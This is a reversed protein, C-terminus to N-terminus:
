FRESMEKKHNGSVDSVPANIVKDSVHFIGLLHSHDNCILILFIPKNALVRM